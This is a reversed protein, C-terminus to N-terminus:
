QPPPTHGEGLSGSGLVEAAVAEAQRRAEAAQQRAEEAQRRAEEAAEEAAARAAEAAEM